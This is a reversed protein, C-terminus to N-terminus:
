ARGHRDVDLLQERSKRVRGVPTEHAFPEGGAALRPAGLEVRAAETVELRPQRVRGSPAVGAAGGQLASSSTRGSRHAVGDGRRGVLAAFVQGVLQSIERAACRVRIRRASRFPTSRTGGTEFGCCSLEGKRDAGREGGEGVMAVRRVDPRGRFSGRCSSPRAALACRGGRRDCLARGRARPRGSSPARTASRCAGGRTPRRSACRRAARGREPRVRDAACLACWLAARPRAPRRQARRISLSPTSVRCRWACAAGSGARRGTRGMRGRSAVACGRRAPKGREVVSM